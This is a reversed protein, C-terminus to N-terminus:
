VGTCYRSFLRFFNTQFLTSLGSRDKLLKSDDFWKVSGDRNIPIEVRAGSKYEIVKLLKGDDCKTLTRYNKTDKKM